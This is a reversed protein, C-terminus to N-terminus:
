CRVMDNADGKKRGLSSASFTIGKQQEETVKEFDDRSPARCSLVSSPDTLARSMASKHNLSEEHRKFNIMQLCTSSRIEFRAWVTHLGVDACVKCGASFIKGSLVLNCGHDQRAATRRKIWKLKDRGDAGWANGNTIEPRKCVRTSRIKPLSQRRFNRFRRCTRFRRCKQCIGVRSRTCALFILQDM